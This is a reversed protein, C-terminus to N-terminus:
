RRVTRQMRGVRLSLPWRVTRPQDTRGWAAALSGAAAVPDNGTADRFRTVASWTGVYSLFRALDWQATMDFAPAALEPFPFPLTRYGTEVFRREAPWWARVSDHRRGLETDLARDGLVPLAYTWVALVGDPRLVRAVEVNFASVDFWHLAQAVVVLDLSGTALGSREATAVRYEVRPHPVAAAIQAASADTAIVHDFHGALASAAQGNGTGADWARGPTPALSALWAFLADPHRPRSAAYHAAVASFHDAIAPRDHDAPPLRNV